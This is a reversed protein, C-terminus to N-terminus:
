MVLLLQSARSQSTGTFHQVAGEISFSLSVGDTANHGEERNWSYPVAPVTPYRQWSSGLAWLWLPM